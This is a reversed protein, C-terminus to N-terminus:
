LTSCTERGCNHSQAIEANRRMGQAGPRELATWGYRKDFDADSFGVARLMARNPARKDGGTILRSKRNLGDKSSEPM